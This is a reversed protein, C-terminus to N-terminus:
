GKKALCIIRGDRFAVVIRGQGDLAIGWRVPEGPLPRAWHESGDAAQAVLTWVEAGDVKRPALVLKGNKAAVAM